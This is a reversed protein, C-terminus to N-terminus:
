ITAPRFVIFRQKWGILFKEISINKGGSTEAPDNYYIKGDSIGSVVVLHPIPSQPDFEYFISAMVPGEKLFTKFKEFAIEKSLDSLEYSAGELGYQNSLNILGSHLWGAKKLYAGSALGDELLTQPLTADPKYFNIIMALSAVGCSKGRWEPFQIDSFQSYFPVEPVKIETKKPSEAINKQISQISALVPVSTINETAIIPSNLLSLILNIYVLM